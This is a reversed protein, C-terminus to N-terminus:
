RKKSFRSQGGEQPLQDPPTYKRGFIEAKFRDFQSKVAGYTSENVLLPWDESNNLFQYSYGHDDQFAFLFLKSAYDNNLANEDIIFPTLNLFDSVMNDDTKIFLVSKNDTYNEFEVGIEAVGTSAVTLARNLIIQNHRFRAPEHRRKQLEINKITVLKYKVLFAIKKLIIGLHEETQLCLSEIQESSLEGNDNILELLANLYNYAQMVAPEKESDLRVGKLENIFYPIQNDEFIRGITHMLKVYDFRRFNQESLAFFSNLDPLHENAINIKSNKYKEDWLQSLQIFCIFQMSTRYTNVMQKLRALTFLEMSDPHQPDNSRTFLKRLHEGIPTPFSDVIERKISPIDLEEKNLEDDLDKNFAALDECIIDILIDNVDVRSEYDFRNRLINQVSRRKPLAWDQSPEHGANLYLGWPLEEATKWRNDLSRYTKVTRSREFKSAIFSSAIDFAKQIPIHSALAFYFQEAFEVAMQDAVSVSTAIVAKVGNQLLLEVQPKTACGNLFVLHLNEQTGLLQALGKGDAMQAAGEKTELQLTTGNAHGGFHFIAVRNNYHVFFKFIDSLTTAAEAEVQIIQEDNLARLAQYINKRERNILPLYRDQDNAFTLYIIPEAM